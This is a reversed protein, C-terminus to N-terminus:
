SRSVTGPAPAGGVIQRHVRDLDVDKEHVFLERLGPRHAFRPVLHVHLHFVEQGAADGSSSLLNLGDAALRDVLLRATASIAPAIETLAGPEGLLDDVHRRPVVLTHGVHWPNIDLFAIAHEDAYVQKSPIEGAVIRCFLCSM